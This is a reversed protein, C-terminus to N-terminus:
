GGGPREAASAQQLGTAVEHLIGLRTYIPRVLARIEPLARQFWISGAVCIAGGMAVTMPAGIRSALSGGLLSGIPTMGLVAMSYFAMVRGRKDDDVITQLITNGSALQQMLGYGAFPMVALSLWLNRSLGFIVLATGCLATSLVMHRGLGLVTKRMALRVAGFLAGVGSATMLFGLTHADGHLVDSAFIPMLVSYPMGVLSVLGLLLLISRIPVFGAVYAWGEGLEQRLRRGPKSPLAPAPRMLLLSAVVAVYSLGDVLFCYGEGAAAIVVGALAPGALRALNVISSNLAIANGVDERHDVMQIVFAQRIPMDVANILGQMLALLAIHWIAIVGSLTLAALTLSQVMSLMQTILLTRHREWRDAWVGALPTLFLAPIQGVFGIIGLLSASGSLRYVLWGTAVRTMWTGILSLGQGAFFLRFNRSGLARTAFFWSNV